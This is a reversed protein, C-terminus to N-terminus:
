TSAETDNGSGGAMFDLARAFTHFAPAMTGDHEGGKELVHARWDNTYVIGVAIGPPEITVTSKISDAFDGSNRPAIKKAFEAGKRTLEELSAIVEPSRQLELLGKPDLEFGTKDAL